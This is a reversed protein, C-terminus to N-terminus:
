CDGSKKKRDAKTKKATKEKSEMAKKEKFLKQLELYSEKEKPDDREIRMKMRSFTQEMCDDVEGRRDELAKKVKREDPNKKCIIKHQGEAECDLQLCEKSCYQTTLCRSCRHINTALKFCSDCRTSKCEFAISVAKEWKSWCDKVRFGMSCLPTGCSYVRSVFPKGLVLPVPSILALLGRDQPRGKAQGMVAGVVIAQTCTSCRQALSGGCFIELFKPFPPIRKQLLQSVQDLMANFTSCDDKISPHWMEQPVAKRPEKLCEVKLAIDQAFLVSWVLRLSSWLGRPDEEVKLGRTDNFLQNCLYFSWIPTKEKAPYIKRQFWIEARSRIMGEELRKGAAPLFAYARHNSLRIELLIRQMIIILAESRDEQVGEVPFPHPSYVGVPGEFAKLFCVKHHKSDPMESCYFCTDSNHVYPMAEALDKCHRKHVLSWHSKQCDQSCYKLIKCGGCKQLVAPDPQPWGYAICNACEDLSFNLLQPPVLKGAAM